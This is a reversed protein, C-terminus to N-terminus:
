QETEIDFSGETIVHTKGIINHVATFEFTGKLRDGIETVSATGNIWHFEGIDYLDGGKICERGEKETIFSGGNIEHVGIEPM